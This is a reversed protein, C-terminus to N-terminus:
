KSTALQDVVQQAVALSSAPNQGTILNAEAVSFSHWDDGKVYIAGENRLMTELSFPVMDSSQGAAEESNSYGAIKKGKVLPQGNNDKVNKLAAPAHCVLATPKGDNYSSEILRISYTNEPLDWVPGTGGPYYLADYDSAKVQELPITHTLAAQADPDQLFRRVSETTYDPSMSKPDVPAQGGKPSAVTIDLGQEKFLYYPAAFEELWIGTSKGNGPVISASTVVILVKKLKMNKSNQTKVAQAFLLTPFVVLIFLPLM